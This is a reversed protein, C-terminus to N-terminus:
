ETKGNKPFRKWDREKVEEWVKEIIFQLDLYNLACYYAMYILIGGLADEQKLVYDNSSMERIGQEWKLRAHHLEGLEEVMGCLPYYDKNHPFNYNSWKAVEDQLQKFTMTM